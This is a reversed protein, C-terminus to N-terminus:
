STVGAGQAAMLKSSKSQPARKGLRELVISRIAKATRKDKVVSGDGFALHAWLFLELQELEARSYQDLQQELKQRRIPREPNHYWPNSIWISELIPYEDYAQRM